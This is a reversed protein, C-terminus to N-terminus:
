NVILLLSSNSVVYKTSDIVSKDISVSKITKEGDIVISLGNNSGIVYELTNSTVLENSETEAYVVGPIFVIMAAVIILIYKRMKEFM